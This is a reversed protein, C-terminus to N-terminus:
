PQLLHRFRPPIDKTYLIGNDDSYKKPDSAAESPDAGKYLTYTHIKFNRGTKNLTEDSTTEISIIRDRGMLGATIGPRQGIFSHALGESLTSPFVQSFAAQIEQIKEEAKKSDLGKISLILREESQNLVELSNSEHENMSNFIEKIKESLLNASNSDLGLLKWDSLSPDLNNDLLYINLRKIIEPNTRALVELDHITNSDTKHDSKDLKRTRENPDTGNSSGSNPKPATSAQHSPLGSHHANQQKLILILLSGLALLAGIAALIIKRMATSLSAHSDM